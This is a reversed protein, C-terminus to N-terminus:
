QRGYGTGLAITVVTGGTSSMRAARYVGGTELDWVLVYTGDGAGAEFHLYRGSPDWGIPLGLGLDISLM